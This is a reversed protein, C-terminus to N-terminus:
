SMSIDSHAILWPCRSGLCYRLGVVLYCKVYVIKDFLIVHCYSSVDQRVRFRRNVSHGHHAVIVALRVTTFM